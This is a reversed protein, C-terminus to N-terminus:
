MYIEEDYVTNDHMM